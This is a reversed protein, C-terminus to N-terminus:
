ALEWRMTLELRNPFIAAYAGGRYNSRAMDAVRYGAEVALKWWDHMSLYEARVMGGFPINGIFDLATLRAHDLMGRAEHDKIYLPGAVVRRIDRLLPVRTQSPIHHIVNNVTAADFSRDAFPLSQGDYIHTNISLDGFYRDVVDVAEVAGVPFLEAMCQGIAGTGGGIDLLRDHPGQWLALVSNLMVTQYHPAKRRYMASHCGLSRAVDELRVPSFGVKMSSDKEAYRM